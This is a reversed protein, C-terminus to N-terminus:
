LNCSDATRQRAIDSCIADNKLLQSCLDIYMNKTSSVQQELTFRQSVRKYAAEGMKTRLAWNGMLQSIATALRHSDGPPVLIGNVGDEIVDPIGGVNSAVTPVGSAMAELITLPLGEYFSPLVNIDAAAIWEAVNQQYGPLQICRELGFTRRLERLQQEEEGEGLCILRLRPHVQVLERMAEFLIRHGKGAHFRAVMILICDSDESGIVQRIAKRKSTANAFRELDVGNHIVAIKERPVGKKQELFRADYESVAVYKSVFRTTARDILYSAKWGKRWAETGHLTEVIIPVGCLRAIPSAFLSSWFMHSHVIQFHERMLLRALQIAGTVDGPSSLRLARIKIDDSIASRFREYLSPDCVLQARVSDRSVNRLLGCIHEEVGGWLTSNTFYLISRPSDVNHRAAM